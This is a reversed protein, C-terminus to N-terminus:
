SSVYIKFGRFQGRLKSQLLGDPSNFLHSFFIEIQSNEDITISSNTGSYVQCSVTSQGHTLVGYYFVNENFTIFEKLDTTFFAEYQYKLDKNNNELSKIVQKISDLTYQM